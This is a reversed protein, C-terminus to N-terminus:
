PNPSISGAGGFGFNAKLATFDSSNVVTEGTFDARNDYGAQGMSKGFAAKLIAFDSASVVNSNDADGSRQLGMEVNTVPAGALTLTGSVALFGPNYDLPGAGQQASKVRWNYARNPLASVSVTFYGGATTTQAPYNVETAGSKLTLTIPIQQLGSPQAPRSQWMVHGVLISAPAPTRTSTRTPMPTSTSTSTRTPTPSITGEVLYRTVAFDFDYSSSSANAHGAALIKGDPQVRVAYANDADNGFTTRVLGTDGFGADLSGNANFLALAFDTNGYHGALVLRGDSLRDLAYAGSSALFDLDRKGGDGFGTDLTGNSNYQALAFGYRECPNPNCGGSIQATGGLVIKGDPRTVIGYARDSGGRFDTTVIGGSFSTDLSGNTNYRVLTFNQQSSGSTWGEGGVLIKGDPQVAVANASDEGGIDTIVIGGNGFTTDLSGDSNYRAVAFDALFGGTVGAVVIKDGPAFAVAHAIDDRGAGTQPDIATLVKGGNGFATDLSGDANYRAIAFTDHARAPNRGFGVAVIKDDSQVAVARAGSGFFPNFSTSVGGGIGFGTDIDGDPSLRILAFDTFSQPNPRAEGALVIRGGSQLAMGYAMDDTGGFDVAIGGGYAFTPDLDGSSAPSLPAGAVATTSVAVMGGLLALLALLAAAKIAKIAKPAFSRAGRMELRNNM